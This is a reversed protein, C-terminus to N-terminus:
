STQIRKAKWLEKEAEITQFARRESDKKEFHADSKLTMISCKSRLQKWIRDGKREM